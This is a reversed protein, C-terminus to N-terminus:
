FSCNSAFYDIPLYLRLYFSSKSFVFDIQLTSIPFYFWNLTFHYFITLFWTCYMFEYFFENLHLFFISILTLFEFLILFKFNKSFKLNYIVKLDSIKSNLSCNSHKSEIQHTTKIFNVMKLSITLRSTLKNQFTHLIVMLNFSFTFFQGKSLSIKNKLFFQAYNKESNIKLFFNLFIRKLPTEYNNKYSKLTKWVSISTWEVYDIHTVTSIVFFLM